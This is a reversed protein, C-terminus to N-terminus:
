YNRYTYVTPRHCVVSQISNESSSFFYFHAIHNCQLHSIPWGISFWMLPSSGSEISEFCYKRLKSGWSITSSVWEKSNIRNSWTWVSAGCLIEFFLVHLCLHLLSSFFIVIFRDISKSSPTTKWRERDRQVYQIHTRANCNQDFLEDFSCCLNYAGFPM